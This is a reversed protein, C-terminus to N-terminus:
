GFSFGAQYSDLFYRTLIYGGGFADLMIKLKKSKQGFNM